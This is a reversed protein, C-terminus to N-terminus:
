GQLLVVGCLQLIYKWCDELVTPRALLYFFLELPPNQHGPPHDLEKIVHGGGGGGWHPVVFVSM